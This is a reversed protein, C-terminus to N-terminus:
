GVEKIQTQNSGSKMLRELRDLKRSVSDDIMRSGVTVVMGGLLDKNVSVDLMVDAKMAEDLQKKLAKTQKDTLAYATQVEAQIGGRRAALGQYIAQVCSPLEGLRSNQILVCLFNQTLKHLKAKKAIAVIAAEKDKRSIIPNEILRRLDESETIMADLARIDKEVDDLKKASTATDLLASAYRKAVLSTQSNIKSM